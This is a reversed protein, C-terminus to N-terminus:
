GKTAKAEAEEMLQRWYKLIRPKKGPAASQWFTLQKTSLRGMKQYYVAMSSGIEAHAPMFGRGNHEVTAGMVQESATQRNHLHVLARGVAVMGVADKRMLVTEIKTRLDKNM